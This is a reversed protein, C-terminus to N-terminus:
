KCFGVRNKESRFFFFFFIQPVLTPFPLSPICLPYVNFYLQTLLKGQTHSAPQLTKNHTLESVPPQPVICTDLRSDGSESVHNSPIKIKYIILLM